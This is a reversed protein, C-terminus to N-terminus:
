ILISTNKKGQEKKQHLMSMICVLM